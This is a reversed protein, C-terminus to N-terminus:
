HILVQIPGYTKTVSDALFLVSVFLSGDTLIPASSTIDKWLPLGPVPAATALTTPEFRFDIEANAQAASLQGGDPGYLRVEIRLTDGATLPIHQTMESNQDDFLRMQEVGGHPSPQIQVHFPGFSKNSGNGPFHLAATQTGSVGSPSLPVVIRRLPQGTVPLSTALTDPTFQLGLEVGGSIETLRHGAAAYMRVEVLLSDNDILGTHLTLERGLSDFLRVQAVDGPNGTGNPEASPVKGGCATFIWLGSIFVCARTLM